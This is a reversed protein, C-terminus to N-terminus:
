AKIQNLYARPTMGIKKKFFTNFVTKSNFGSDYAVALMTLRHASEKQIKNTFTQLRYTNVFDSFNQQFGENLLQSMHNPPLNVYSALMRLSLDANLFLQEQEMLELLRTKYKKMEDPSFLLKKTKVKPVKPEKKQIFRGMIEIFEPHKHLPKLLPETPLLAVISIKRELAEKLYAIAEDSRNMQALTMILFSMANGAFQTQLYSKLKLIGEEVIELNGLHVHTIILGGLKSLFGNSDEPLTEFYQLAQTTNGRLLYCMGICFVPFPLNPELELSRKYYVLANEFDEKMYFWFGKYDINMASFPAIELAKDIYIGAADLNGEITKFNSMTLYMEDTARIAMANNLHEYATKLDSKYWMAIWALNLQTQSLNPGLAIAKEFFPQAKEMAVAVDMLGMTGMYLYAQNCDLYALPFDPCNEIVDEFIGIAKMSNGYDLKMLYFRGKLYNKYVEFPVDYTDVLHDSMNFHGIHERLRDAIILSIEDQVAFVNKFDRDFTESWFNLDNAVEILQVTIRIATSSLRVSGQLIISVDLAKGIETLTKDSNKFTFSSTRSTVKLEKIKTLANTIEDSIGESFYSLEENSSMNSFPLVAISKYDNM